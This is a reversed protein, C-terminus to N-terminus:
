KRNLKSLSATSQSEHSDSQANLVTAKIYAVAGALDKVATGPNKLGRVLPSRPASGDPTVFLLHIRPPLEVETFPTKRGAKGAPEDLFDTALVLFAHPASAPLAQAAAVVTDAVSSRRFDLMGRGKLAADWRAALEGRASVAGHLFTDLAAATHQQWDLRAARRAQVLAVYKNMERLYREYPLADSPPPPLAPATFAPLAASFPNAVHEQVLFYDLRLTEVGVLELLSQLQTASQADLAGQAEGGTFDDVLGIAIVAPEHPPAPAAKAAAASHGCGAFGLLIFLAALGRPILTALSSNKM